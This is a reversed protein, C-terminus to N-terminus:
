LNGDLLHINEYGYYLEDIQDYERDINGHRLHAVIASSVFINTLITRNFQKILKMAFREIVDSPHIDDLIRIATKNIDNWGIM